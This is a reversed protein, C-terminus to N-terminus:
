SRGVLPFTDLGLADAIDEIDDAAAAVSRREHRDSGGYGPRDYCILQAGLRYLVSGRPKPGARSGPSGHLLFVPAGRPHGSVEYQLIRGDRAKVTPSAQATDPLGPRDARFQSVRTRGHIM